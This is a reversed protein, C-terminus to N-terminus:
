LAADETSLGAAILVPAVRFGKGYVLPVPGGETTVNAGGNFLYSAQDETSSSTTKASPSLMQGLGSLALAVGLGKMAGGVTTGLVGLGTVSGPLFFAAGVLFVGAVIKGLGRNGAGALVPVIHLDASGLRFDLDGQGLPIGGEVPGRIVRFNREMAYARFGPLVASLAQGAEGASAVDLRFVPGFRRGLGGHLHINRM